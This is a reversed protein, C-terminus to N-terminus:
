GGDIVELISGCRSCKITVSSIDGYCSGDVELLEYSDYDESDITAHCVPCEVRGDMAKVQIGRWGYGDVM